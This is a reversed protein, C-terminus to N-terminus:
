ETPPAPFTEFIDADNGEGGIAGDQGFTGISVGDKGPRYEYRRGWPDFFRPDPLEATRRWVEPDPFDGHTARYAEAIQGLIQIEGVVREATTPFRIRLSPLLLMLLVITLGTTTISAARLRSTEYATSGVNWVLWPGFFPIFAARWSARREFALIEEIMGPARTKSTERVLEELATKSRPLSIWRRTQM